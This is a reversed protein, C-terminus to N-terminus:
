HGLQLAYQTGISFADEFVARDLRVTAEVKPAAPDGKISWAIAIPTQGHHPATALVDPVTTNPEKHGFRAKGAAVSREFTKTFAGITFYGGAFTPTQRLWALDVASGLRGEPAAKKLAQLHSQLESVQTGMALLTRTGDPVVYIYIKSASVKEPKKQDKDKNASKGASETMLKVVAKGFAESDLAFEYAVTGTPMGAPASRKVFSVSKSNLASRLTPDSLVKATADFVGTISSFPQQEYVCVYWPGYSALIDLKSAGAAGGEGPVGGCASASFRAANLQDLSRSLENRVKENVAVHALAGDLLASLRHVIGEFMKPDQGGVYSAMKSDSPLEFFVSPAPGSHKAADAAAQALWSHAHAFDFTTSVDVRDPSQAVRSDILIRDLDDVVDVVEDGLAYLIETVPRSLRTDSIGLEHIILPVALAKGQRLKSGYRERIPGLKLEIHLDASGMNQLPLGRTAYALLNQVDVRRAGCIARAQARGVSAAVACTMPSEDVTMFVGPATQEMKREFKEFMQRGAELSTVGVSFVAHPQAVDTDGGDALVVAAEIPTDTRLTQSLGPGLQDLMHIDFPLNMWRAITTAANEFREARAILVLDKPATVPSLEPAPEVKLPALPPTPPAAAPQAPKACAALILAFLVVPGTHRKLGM